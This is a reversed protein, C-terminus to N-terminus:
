KCKTPKIYYILLYFRGFEDWPHTMWPLNGLTRLGPKIAKPLNFPFKAEFGNSKGPMPQLSSPPSSAFSSIVRTKWIGESYTNPGM